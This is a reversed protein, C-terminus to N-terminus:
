RYNAPQASIFLLTLVLDFVLCLNNGHPSEDRNHGEEPVPALGTLPASVNLPVSINPLVSVDPQEMPPTPRELEQPRDM